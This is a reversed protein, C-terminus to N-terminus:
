VKKHSLIKGWSDFVYLYNHILTKNTRLYIHLMFIATQLVIKEVKFQWHQRNEFFFGTVRIKQM